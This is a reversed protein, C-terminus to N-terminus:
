YFPWQRTRHAEQEPTLATPGAAVQPPQGPLAAPDQWCDV